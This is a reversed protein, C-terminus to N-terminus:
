PVESLYTAISIHEDSTGPPCDIVLYDLEGWCADTFFQKILGDKKPGRWIVADRTSPLMFGVSIM